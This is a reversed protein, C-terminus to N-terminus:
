NPKLFKLFLCRFFRIIHFVFVTSFTGLFPMGYLEWFVGCIIWWLLCRPGFACFNSHCCLELLSVDNCEPKVWLFILIRFWVCVCVCVCVFPGCMCGGRTWCSDLLWKFVIQSPTRFYTLDLWKFFAIQSLPFFILDSQHNTTLFPQKFAGVIWRLLERMRPYEWINEATM